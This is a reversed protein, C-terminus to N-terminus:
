ATEPEKYKSFVLPLVLPLVEFYPIRMVLLDLILFAMFGAILLKDYRRTFFGVIFALEVITASIYLAWGLKEHAILFYIFRTQWHNPSSVLHAAHQTLLVGSLQQPYFVGSQRLKWIGASAFFFLFFYRLGHMVFYFQKTNATAFLLPMLLWALHGEISNTPYLTYCQVYIWNILLWLLACYVSAKNFSRYVLYWLFPSAYFVVDFFLLRGTNGLPWKHIGTKMFIWTSFDFRNIFFYPEQQFLWLGNALKYIGLFYFIALFSATFKQRQTTNM